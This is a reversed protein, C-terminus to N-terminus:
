PTGGRVLMAPGLALLGTGGNVFVVFAATRLRGLGLGTRALFWQLALAYLGTALLALGAAGARGQGPATMGVALMIALAGVAAVAFQCWNFAVAYRLWAEGRGWQRALLESLVAPALLAVLTSLLDVLGGAWEGELVDGLSSLLPFALLPPLSALFAERTAGIGGWGQRRFRM